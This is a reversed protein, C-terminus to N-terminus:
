WSNACFQETGANVPLSLLSISNHLLMAQFGGSCVTICLNSGSLEGSHTPPLLLCPRHPQPRPSGARRQSEAAV